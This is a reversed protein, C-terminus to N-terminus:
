KEQAGRTLLLRSVGGPLGTADENEQAGNLLLLPFEEM